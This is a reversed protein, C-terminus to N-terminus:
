SVCFTIRKIAQHIHQTNLDRNGHTNQIKIGRNRPNFTKKVTM